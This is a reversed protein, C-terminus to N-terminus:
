SPGHHEGKKLLKLPLRIISHHKINFSFVFDPNFYTTGFSKQRTLHTLLALLFLVLGYLGLTAATFMSVFRLMRFSMGMGYQPVTFSALAIVSVVIVMISSVIHAQVAAQGIIVGGVLGITQGLPNPLRLGAERLLEITIEMILAEVIPPFPINVRTSSITIALNTPLLGQQFSVLAIYIASLSLTVFISVFRLLRIFSAAIWREYYDDPSTMITSLSAPVILVFPSNDVFIAIRGNILASAVKDPRETNQIQPFPSYVNDEILEELVGSDQIDDFTVQHLRNKLESLIQEDATGKLYMITVRTYKKKGISMEVAKLLPDSLRQRVLAINTSTDENFSIKPGRAITETTADTLARNKTGSTDLIYAVSVGNILIVCKGSLIADIVEPLTRVFHTTLLSVSTELKEQTFSAYDQLLLKLISQIETKQNMEKIYLYYIVQGNNLSKKEHILDDMDKLHPLIASLNDYLHEKLPIQNM